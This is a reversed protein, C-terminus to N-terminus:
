IGFYNNLPVVYMGHIERFSCLTFDGVRLNFKNIKLHMNWYRVPSQLRTSKAILLFAESLGVCACKRPNTFIQTNLKMKLDEYRECIVYKRFETIDTILGKKQRVISNLFEKQYRAMCHSSKRGTYFASIGEMGLQGVSAVECLFDHPTAGTPCNQMSLSHLTVWMSHPSARWM